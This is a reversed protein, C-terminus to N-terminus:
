AEKEETNCETLEKCKKAENMHFAAEGIVPHKEYAKEMAEYVQEATEPKRKPLKTPLKGKKSYLLWDIIEREEESVLALYAYKVRLISIDKVKLFVPQLIKSYVALETFPSKKLIMRYMRELDLTNLFAAPLKQGNQEMTTLVAEAKEDEGLETYKYYEMLRVFFTLPNLEEKPGIVFLEEPIDAFKAGDSLMANLKLQLYIARQNEVSKTCLLCNKGDNPVGVTMPAMNTVAFIVGVFISFGGVWAWFPVNVFFLPVALLCLILNMVGGGLNYWVYPYKEDDKWEPPSMLCQGALGPTKIKKRILKGDKKVITFSGVRFSLFEYGTLLGFVLHGAEHAIVHIMMMLYFGVIVLILYVFELSKKLPFPPTIEFWLLGEEVVYVGLFGIIGGFIACLFLFLLMGRSSKKRPAEKEKVRATYAEIMESSIKERMSM